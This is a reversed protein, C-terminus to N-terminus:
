RTNTTPPQHNITASTAHKGTSKAQGGGYTVFREPATPLVPGGSFSGHVSALENELGDHPPLM